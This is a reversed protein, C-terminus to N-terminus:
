RGGRGGGEEGKRREGASPLRRPTGLKAGVKLL